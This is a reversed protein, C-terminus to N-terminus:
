KETETRLLALDADSAIASDLEAVMSAPYSRRIQVLLAAAEDIERLRILTCLINQLNEGSRERELARSCYDLAQEYRGMAFALWARHREVSALDANLDPGDDQWAAVEQEATMRAAEAYNKVKPHAAVIHLASFMTVRRIRGEAQLRRVLARLEEPEWDPQRLADRFVALAEAEHGSIRHVPTQYSEEDVTEFIRDLIARYSM